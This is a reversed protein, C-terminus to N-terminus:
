ANVMGLILVSLQQFPAALEPYLSAGAAILAAVLAAILRAKTPKVGSLVAFARPAARENRPAEGGWGRLDRAVAREAEEM